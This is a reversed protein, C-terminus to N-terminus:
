PHYARGHRHRIGDRRRRDEHLQVHWEIAIPAPRDSRAGWTAGTHTTDISAEGDPVVYDVSPDARLGKLQVADLRAAYGKLAHSYVRTAEAGYRQSHASAVANPARAGDKLVVIYDRASAAL